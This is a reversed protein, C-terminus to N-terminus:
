QERSLQQAFVPSSLVLTAAGAVILLPKNFVRLMM